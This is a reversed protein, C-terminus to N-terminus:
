AFHLLKAMLSERSNASKSRHSTANHDSARHVFLNKAAIDLLRKRAQKPTYDNKSTTTGDFDGAPTYNHEPRYPAERTVNHQPYADRTETSGEFAPVGSYENDADPRCKNCQREVRITIAGTPASGSRSIHRISTAILPIQMSPRMRPSTTTRITAVLGSLPAQPATNALHQNVRYYSSETRTM